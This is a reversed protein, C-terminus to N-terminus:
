FPANNADTTETTKTNHLDVDADACIEAMVRYFNEDDAPRSPIYVNKYWNELLSHRAIQWATKWRNRSLIEYERLHRRDHLFGEAEPFRKAFEAWDKQSLAALHM